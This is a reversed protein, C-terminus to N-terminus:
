DGRNKILYAYYDKITRQFDKDDIKSYDTKMYAEALWEDEHTVKKMVSKGAVERKNKYLDLWEEMTSLWQSNGDKDTKEVRGLGKRKIFNDEKSYGFFTDKNAKKHKQSTDFIMCCAISSAGPYFMENPLSFVTDLTYNDLMKKKYKILDKSNGIAVQMPLLVAIKCNKSVYKAVFEVFHLGKTSVHELM